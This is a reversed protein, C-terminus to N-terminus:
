TQHDINEHKANFNKLMHWLTERVNGINLVLVAFAYVGIGVVVRGIGALLGHGFPLLGIVWGMLGASLIIQVVGMWPVPLTFYQSGLWHGFVVCVTYAVVCAALAGDVGYRPILYLNLLLNILAALGVVGISKHTQKAFQFALATHFLYICNVLVAFGAWPLLRLSEGVFEAGILLPLFDDGVAVLGLWAPIAVGLLLLLYDALKARVAQGGEQELTRLLLPYAAMNLASTVMVLLQFPLSFAVAYQGAAEFGVLYGLLLRDTTHMLELLVFTLSLPLGYRLLERLMGRELQFPYQWFHQWFHGSFLPVLVFGLSTALLAGQWGYGEWVLLLGLATALLVRLVENGLYRGAQLTISNIRQYATYIAGSVLLGVFSAALAGDGGAFVYLVAVVGALLSGALLAVMVVGRMTAETLQQDHWYRMIGVYLWNFLISNASAAIVLITSYVGYAEPNIWRTYAALTIFAALAPVAHALLYLVSHRFQMDSLWGRM